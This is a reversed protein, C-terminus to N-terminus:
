RIAGAARLARVRAADIGFGQLLEETAAVGGDATPMVPTPAPTASFRPAPAPQVIGAVDIFTGRAANHPHRPAEAMSLVPAFCVDSHQMLRCWEDRTRTLFRAAIRERLQPWASRDMQEGAAGEEIALERLLQAYFKPEISGISVYRGDACEYVDYFPAGSDLFNTGREDRWHGAARMSWMMTMLLAAGDTMACDVVQGLGTRGASLFAALMGFALLMGGGGFDGVLNLPPTPKGGARGIAHLAGTLAIYNIDHGAAAALPGSQGWGTMRGYVLKPNDAMLELPGLGLREMVGPRFGEILGDVGRILDRLVQRGGDSKLDIQVSKRSRSLVDVSPERDAAGHREVRIVQAGHDALMMAAFPAPGLGAMEVIRIGELAGPM